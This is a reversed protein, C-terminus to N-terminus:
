QGITVSEGDHASVSYAMAYDDVADPLFTVHGDVYAANVGGPHMSRPAASLYGDLAPEPPAQACPMRAELAAAWQPSDAVCSRLTDVNPGQNNPPQARGVSGPSATYSTRLHHVTDGQDPDHSQRWGLAHMDYALLSAGTWPLVWAGREDAVSDLTRVESLMVTQSTGDEISALKQGGAILAGRFILQLDVHFPSVYAAYNSKACAASSTLDFLRYFRGSAEGSPCLLSSLFREQPDGTQRAVNVSLDFADYLTTEEIYPLLLVIWSLKNGGGQNYLAVPYREDPITEALGCAPLLVHTSEYNLAALALQKLNNACQIRRASERASQVAPLLLSVLVGIIAIVVLLEVLTFGATQRRVVRQLCSHEAFRM